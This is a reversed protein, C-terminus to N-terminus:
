IENYYYYNSARSYNHKHGQQNKVYESRGKNVAQAVKNADM